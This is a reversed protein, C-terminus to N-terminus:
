ERLQDVVQRALGQTDSPTGCSASVVAVLEGSRLAIQDGGDFAYAEDALGVIPNAGPMSAYEHLTGMWGIKVTVIHPGKLSDPANVQACARSWGDAATTHALGDIALAVVAELRDASMIPCDDLAASEASPAPVATPSKRSESPDDARTSGGSPVPWIIPEGSRAGAGNQHGVSCASCAFAAIVLVIHARTM